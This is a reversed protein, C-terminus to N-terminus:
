LVVVLYLALCWTRSCKLPRGRVKIENGQEKMSALKRTAAQQMWKITVPQRRKSRLKINYLIYDTLMKFHGPNKHQFKFKRAAKRCKVGLLQMADLKAATETIRARNKWWKSLSGLPVGM